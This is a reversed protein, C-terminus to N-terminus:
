RRGKFAPVLLILAIASFLLLILLIPVPELTGARARGEAISLGSAGADAIDWGGLIRM